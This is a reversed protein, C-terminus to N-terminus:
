RNTEFRPPLYYPSWPSDLLVDYPVYDQHQRTNDARQPPATPGTKPAPATTVIPGLAYGGPQVNVAPAQSKRIEPLRNQAQQPQKVVHNNELTYTPLQYGRDFQIFIIMLVGALIILLSLMLSTSLASPSRM